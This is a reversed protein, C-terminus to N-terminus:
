YFASHIFRHQPRKNKLYQAWTRLSTIRGPAMPSKMRERGANSHRFASLRSTQAAEGFRGKACNASRTREIADVPSSKSPTVSGGGRRISSRRPNSEMTDHYPRFRGSNQSRTRLRSREKVNKGASGASSEAM